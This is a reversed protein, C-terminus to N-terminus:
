GIGVGLLIGYTFLLQGLSTVMASLLLGVFVVSSGIMVFHKASLDKMLFGTALIILNSLIEFV